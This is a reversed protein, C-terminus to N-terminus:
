ASKQKQKFGKKGGGQEGFRIRNSKVVMDRHAISKERARKKNERSVPKSGISNSVIEPKGFIQKATDHITRVSEGEIQRMFVKFSLFQRRLEAITKERDGGVTVRLVDYRTIRDSLEDKHRDLTKPSLGTMRKRMRDLVFESVLFKREWLIIQQLAVEARAGVYDARKRNVAANPASLLNVLEVLQDRADEYDVKALIAAFLNKVEAVKEDIQQLLAAFRNMKAEPRPGQPNHSLANSKLVLM